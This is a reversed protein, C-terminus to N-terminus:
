TYLERKKASLVDAGSLIQVVSGDTEFRRRWWAIRDMEQTFNEFVAITANIATVDGARLSESVAPSHWNSVNLGDIVISRRYLDVAQEASLSM